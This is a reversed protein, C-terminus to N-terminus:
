ARWLFAQRRFRFHQSRAIWRFKHVQGVGFAWGLTVLSKGLARRDQGTQGDYAILKMSYLISFDLLTGIHQLAPILFKIHSTRIPCIFTSLPAASAAEVVAGCVGFVATTLIYRYRNRLTHQIVSSYRSTQTDQRTDLSEHRRVLLFDLLAFGLPLWVQQFPHAITRVITRSHGVEYSQGACQVDRLVRRYVEVRLTLAVALGLFAIRLTRLSVHQGREEQVDAPEDEKGRAGLEDLPISAHKHHLANTNVRILLQGLFVGLVSVSAFVLM